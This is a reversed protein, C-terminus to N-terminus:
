ETSFVRISSLNLAPPSPFLLPYSPQIADGVWYVHTPHVRPTPSPYPPRTHQPEHPQLTPDLQAVSSFSDYDTSWMGWTQFLFSSYPTTFGGFAKTIRHKRYWNLETWDNLWAQSKAVGHAAARWAERDLVLEWLKSLSMDMPDTIGDLWRMRQQGRRRRSEIKGRMLTKEFLDARQM